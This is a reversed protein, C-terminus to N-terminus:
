VVEVTPATLQRTTATLAQDVALSVSVRELVHVEVRGGYLVRVPDYPELAPNPVATFDVNYPLGTSRTLMATAATGAQSVSTVFPSSYFRPVQGFPGNWWTPSTPDSDYAVARVPAAADAAEGSAVVANYVGERTIRRRLSVLVGGEGGNVDFVPDTADPADNVRLIGRHDWYWIKGVARVLDDLTAFRDQECIIARGIPENETDDDWLIQAWPYVETVLHAVVQGYRMTAPFQQPALSKGDIIGAMRDRGAVRITGRPAESQEVADIRFYGLSVWETAVGITVGREVFLEPGYPTLLSQASTPWYAPLTILDVNSRVDATGDVQVDGGQVPVEEGDPDASDSQGPECVRARFVAKHSGRITTLFASTVPRM